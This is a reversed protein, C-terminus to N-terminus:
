HNAFGGAASAAGEDDRNVVFSLASGLSEADVGLDHTVGRDSPVTNFGYLLM